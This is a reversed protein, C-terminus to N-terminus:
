SYIAVVHLLLFTFIGIALVFLWGYHKRVFPHLVPFLAKTVEYVVVYRIMRATIAVLLFLPIFFHFGAAEHNFVKYPVGSFPQFALGLIGHQQYWTDVQTLMRPRIYPLHVFTDHPLRWWLAILTGVITGLIDYKVLDFKRKVKMFILLILLFEPIIFWVVAEGAAWFFVLADSERSGFFREMFYNFHPRKERIQERNRWAFVAVFPAFFLAMAIFLVVFNKLYNVLFAVM